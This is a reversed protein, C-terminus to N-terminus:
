TDEEEGRAGASPPPAGPAPEAAAQVPKPAPVVDLGFSRLTLIGSLGLELEARAGEGEVAYRCTAGDQCLTVSTPENVSLFAQAERLYGQVIARAAEGRDREFRTHELVQEVGLSLRAFGLQKGTALWTSVVRAIEGVDAPADIQPGELAGFLLPQLVQVAANALPVRSASEATPLRSVFIMYLKYFDVLEFPTRAQLVAFAAAEKQLEALQALDGYSRDILDYIAIQADLGLASVVPAAAVGVEGLFSGALALQGQTLLGSDALVKETQHEVVSGTEGREARTLIRLDSAKLTMLKAPSVWLGIGPLLSLPSAHLGSQVGAVLQTEDAFDYRVGPSAAAWALWETGGDVFGLVLRARESLGGVQAVAVGAVSVARQAVLPGRRPASRSRRPPPPRDEPQYAFRRGLDRAEAELAEDDDIAAGGIRARPAVRGERQQVVHALEHGVLEVLAPGPLRAAWPALHITEGRALAAAGLRAPAGDVRVRVTSLDAGFFAEARARLAGPLGFSVPHEQM